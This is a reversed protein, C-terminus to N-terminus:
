CMTTCYIGLLHFWDVMIIITILICSLRKQVCGIVFWDVTESVIRVTEVYLCSLSMQVIFPMFVCVCFPWGSTLVAVITYVGVRFLLKQGHTSYQVPDQHHNKVTKPKTPTQLSVFEVFDALCWCVLIM